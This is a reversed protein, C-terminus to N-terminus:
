CFRPPYYVENGPPLPLKEARHIKHLSLNNIFKLESVDHDHLYEEQISTPAKTESSKEETPTPPAKAERERQEAVSSINHSPYVIFNAGTLLLLCAAMVAASLFQLLKQTMNKRDAVKM